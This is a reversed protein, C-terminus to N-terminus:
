DEMLSDPTVITPLFFNAAHSLDRLRRLVHPNAIHTCNWTVLFDIEYAVCYAIHYIDPLAKPPLELKNRLLQTTSLVEPSIEVLTLLQAATVRLRAAEPDGVQIEDLVMSSVFLEFRSPATEWWRRTIDQHAAIILDRSPRGTLYSIISTEVYVTPNM